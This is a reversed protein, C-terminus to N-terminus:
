KAQLASQQYQEPSWYFGISEMANRFDAILAPLRAILVERLADPEISLQEDTAEPWVAASRAYDLERAKGEGVRTWPVYAYHIGPDAPQEASDVYREPTSVRENSGNLAVLEWAPLGTKGNRIQRTEGKRLGNHDRDGALYVTNALYHMPGDTACLHWKILPTLEPFVKSIEEHMCGGAEIDRAKPRRVDATIAFSNHGNGLEDDFRITVTMKADAGYGKIPRAESIWRQMFWLHAPQAEKRTRHTLRGSVGLVTLERDSDFTIHEYGHRM